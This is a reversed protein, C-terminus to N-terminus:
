HSTQVHDPRVYGIRWRGLSLISVDVGSKGFPRKPVILKESNVTSTDASAQASASVPILSSGLGAAGAAKLFDRRSLDTKKESM